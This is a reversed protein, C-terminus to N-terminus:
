KVRKYNKEVGDNFIIDVEADKYDEPVQFGSTVLDIVKEESTDKTIQEGVTLMIQTFASYGKLNWGVSEDIWYAEVIEESNKKIEVYVKNNDPLNAVMKFGDFNLEELEEKGENIEEIADKNSFLTIAEDTAEKLNRFCVVNGQSKLEDM